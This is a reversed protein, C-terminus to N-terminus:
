SCFVKVMQRKGVSRHTGRIAKGAGLSGSHANQRCRPRHQCAATVLTQACAQGAWRRSRRSIEQHHGASRRSIQQDGASTRSIDQQDGASTRSIEQLHGASRKSTEQRELGVTKGLGTGREVRGGWGQQRVCASSLAYAAPASGDSSNTRRGSRRSTRLLSCPKLLSSMARMQETPCDFFFPLAPYMPWFTRRPLFPPASPHLTSIAPGCSCTSPIAVPGADDGGRLGGGGGGCQQTWWWVAADVVVTSRGRDVVVVVSSRGGGCQQTRPGGGGGCQQTRPRICHVFGIIAM